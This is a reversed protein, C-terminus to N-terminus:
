RGGRVMAPQANDSFFKACQNATCLDDFEAHEGFGLTKSYIYAANIANERGGGFTKVTATEFPNIRSYFVFRHM